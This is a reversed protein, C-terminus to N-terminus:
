LSAADTLHEPILVKSVQLLMLSRSVRARMIELLFQYRKTFSGM